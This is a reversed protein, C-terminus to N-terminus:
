YRSYFFPIIYHFLVMSDFLFLAATITLLGFKRWNHPILQRWGLMLFLSIPMIVPYISRGQRYIISNTIANWSLLVGIAVVAAVALVVLAQIQPQYQEAFLRNTSQDTLRNTPQSNEDKPTFSTLALQKSFLLRWRTALLIILGVIALACNITLVQYWFPHLQLIFWGPWAWFSRFLDIPVIPNLFFSGAGLRGWAQTILLTLREPSLFYIVGVLLLGILLLWRWRRRYPWLYFLGITGIAFPLFYATAKSWMAALSFGLIALLNLWSFGKIVGRVMFYLAAITLLETLNGNNVISLLHTHQPNFLILIPVGLVLFIDNPFITRTILYALLIIGVNMLITNLRVLYLQLTIDQHRALFLPWGIVAYAPRSGYLGGYAEQYLTIHDGLSSGPSYAPRAGQDLFDWFEFAFLSRVLDNYWDPGNESTGNWEAATLAARAREFHPSEDPGQWPPVVLAYIIGRVLALALLFSLIARQSTM